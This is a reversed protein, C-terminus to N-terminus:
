RSAEFGGAFDMVCQAGYRKHEANAVGVVRFSETYINKRHGRGPVGDDVILQIVIARANKFGYSINEGISRKWQGHRNVRQQITSGDSGSHGVIGKPGTDEAHDKAALSLGESPELPGLSQANELFTIAEDVAALGEKSQIDGRATGFVGNGRHRKRHDRVFEAYAAPDQRALNLEQIVGWDSKTLYDPCQPTTAASVPKERKKDFLIANRRKLAKEEEVAIVSALYKRDERCLDEPYIRIAGGGERELVVSRGSRRVYRAEVATGKLSRWTRVPHSEDAIMSTAIVFGVLLLRFPRMM